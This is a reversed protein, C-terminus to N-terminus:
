SLIDLIIQIHYYLFKKLIVNKGNIDNLVSKKDNNLM